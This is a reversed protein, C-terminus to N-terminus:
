NQRNEDPTEETEGNNDAKKRKGLVACGVCVFAAGIILFITRNSSNRGTDAIEPIGAGTAIVQFVVAFAGAAMLVALILAVARIIKKSIMM